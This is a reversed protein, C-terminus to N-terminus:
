KRLLQFLWIKLCVCKRLLWLHMPSFLNDCKHPLIQNKLVITFYSFNKCLCSHFYNQLQTSFIWTTSRLFLSCQSCVSLMQVNKEKVMVVFVITLLINLLFGSADHMYIHIPTKKKLICEFGAQSTYCYFNLTRAKVIKINISPIALSWIDKKSIFSSYM